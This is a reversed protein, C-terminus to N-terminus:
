KAPRDGYCTIHLKARYRVMFYRTTNNNFLNPSADSIVHLIFIMCSAPRLKFDLCRSLQQDLSPSAM